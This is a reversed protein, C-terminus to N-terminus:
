SRKNRSVIKNTKFVTCTCSSLQMIKNEERRLTGFLKRQYKLTDPDVKHQEINAQWNDGYGDVETRLAEHSLQFLSTDVRFDQLEETGWLPVRDLVAFNTRLISVSCTVTFAPGAPSVSSFFFTDSHWIKLRFRLSVSRISIYLIFIM